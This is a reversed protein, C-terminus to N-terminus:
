KKIKEWENRTIRYVKCREGDATVYDHLYTMGNAEATKYSPLNNVDMYSYVEDYNFHTFFYDRVAQTMEKGIGQRHYKKNLHYGIEPRLEDDIMQMSVGCDGIMEGTEKLIVAWLGFGRKAYSANCWDIWKQVGSENYPEKYYKMTEPDSIVAQLEKFDGNNIERLFLRNTELIRKEAYKEYCNIECPRGNKEIKQIGIFKFGNKQIVRNSGVNEVEARIFVRKFGLSFLYEYFAKFVETMIGQNWCKKAMCYGVEPAGDEEHKVVDIGGVLEGTDKLIIGYRITTPDKYADVWMQVIQKTVEINEHTPWTLFKTVEPDSAWNSFMEYEDGLKFERLIVRETELITKREM